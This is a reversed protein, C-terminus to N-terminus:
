MRNSTPPYTEVVPKCCRSNNGVFTSAQGATTRNNRFSMVMRSSKEKVIRESYVTNGRSWDLSKANEVVYLPLTKARAGTCTGSSTAMFDKELRVLLSVSLTTPFSSSALNSSRM